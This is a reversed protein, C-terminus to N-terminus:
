PNILTVTSLLQMFTHDLDTRNVVSTLQIPNNGSFTVIHSSLTFDTSIYFSDATGNGIALHEVPHAQGWAISSICPFQMVAKSCFNQLNYRVPRTSISIYPFNDFGLEVKDQQVKLVDYSPPYRFSIGLNTSSFLPWSTTDPDPSMIITTQVPAESEAIPSPESKTQSPGSYAMLAQRMGHFYVIMIGLVCLFVVLLM